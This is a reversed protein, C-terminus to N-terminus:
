ALANSVTILSNYLFGVGVGVELITELGGLIGWSVRFIGSLLLIAGGGGVGVESPLNEDIESFVSFVTDFFGM